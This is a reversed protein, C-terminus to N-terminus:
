WPHPEIMEYILGSGFGWPINILLPVAWNIPAYASWFWGGTLLPAVIMGFATAVIGLGICSIALPRPLIPSGLGMVIGWAGGWLVMLLIRPMAFPWIPDTPYPLRDSYIGPIYVVHLVYVMGEHFSLVALAGAIFGILARPLAPAHTSATMTSGERNAWGAAHRPRKAVMGDAQRAM